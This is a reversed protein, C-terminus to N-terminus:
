HKRYNIKSVMVEGRLDSKERLEKICHHVNDRNPVCPGLVILSGSSLINEIKLNEDEYYHRLRAPANHNDQYEFHVKRVKKTEDKKDKNKKDIDSKTLTVRCEKEYYYAESKYLYRIKELSKWIITALNKEIYKSTSPKDTKILSNLPGLISELKELTDKANTKNYIVKRLCSHPVTLSLSCGEGERGYTRWFVLDDGRKQEQEENSIIFSTIYAYAYLIENEKLWDYHESLNQILFKGEDPDNFHVSDYLRLCPMEGNKKENEKTGKNNEKNEIVSKLISFLTNVTTYHIVPGEEVTVTHCETELIKSCFDDLMTRLTDNVPILPEDIAAQLELPDMKIEENKKYLAGIHNEAKQVAEELKNTTM